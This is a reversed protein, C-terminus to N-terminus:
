MDPPLVKLYEAENDISITYVEQILWAGAIRRFKLSRFAARTMSLSSDRLSTLNQYGVATATDGDVTINYDLQLHQGKPPAGGALMEGLEKKGRRYTIKGGVDTAFVCDDTFLSLFAEARGLDVNLSYRSLLGQIVDRDELVLVRKKLLEFEDVPVAKAAQSDKPLYTKGIDGAWASGGSMLIFILVFSVKLFAKLSTYNCLNLQACRM